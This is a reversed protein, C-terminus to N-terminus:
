ESFLIEMGLTQHSTNYFKANRLREFFSVPLKLSFQPIACREHKPTPTSIETEPIGTGRKRILTAQALITKLILQMFILWIM